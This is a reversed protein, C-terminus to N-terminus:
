GPRGVFLRRRYGLIVEDIVDFGTPRTTNNATAVRYGNGDPSLIATARDPIGADGETRIAHIRALQMAAARLDEPPEVSWGAVYRATATSWIGSLADTGLRAATIYGDPSVRVDALDIPTTDAGDTVSLSLLRRPWRDGTPLLGLRYRDREITEVKFREVFSTRVWRDILDEAYRRARRLVAASYTDTDDRLDPLAALDPLEFYFGGVVEVTTTRTHEEDGATVGAWTVTLVGVDDPPPLVARWVGDDGTLTAAVPDDTVPTGADDVATVECTALDIPDTGDFFSATITASEGAKVQDSM